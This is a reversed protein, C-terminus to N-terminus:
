RTITQLTDNSLRTPWYTIRRITGTHAANNTAGQEALGIYLRDITSPMTVSTDTAETSGNFSSNSSSNDAAMIMRSEPFVGTESHAAQTAGGTALLSRSDNTSANTYLMIRNTASGDSIALARRFSNEGSANSICDVYATVANQNYWSSFNTGTISAVDAARTVTSGETPIYSTPFSGAELQAGWFHVTSSTIGSSNRFPYV